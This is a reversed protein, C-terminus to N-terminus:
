VYKFGGEVGRREGNKERVEGERLMSILELQWRDKVYLKLLDLVRREKM